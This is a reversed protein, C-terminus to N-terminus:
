VLNILSPSGKLNLGHFGWSDENYARVYFTLKNWDTLKNLGSLAYQSVVIFCSKLNYTFSSLFEQGKMVQGM